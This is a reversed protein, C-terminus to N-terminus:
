APGVQAPDPIVRKSLGALGDHVPKMLLAVAGGGLAEVLGGPLGLFVAVLDAVYNEFAAFTFVLTGTVLTYVATRRVVLRPDIDGRYLVATLLCAILGVNSLSWVPIRMYRASASPAVGLWDLGLEGVIIALRGLLLIEAGLLLWYVKRREDSTGVRYSTVMTLVALAIVAFQGVHFFLEIGTLAVPLLVLGSFAWAREPGLVWFVPRTLRALITDPGIRKRDAEQLRRPFLQTTRIALSYAM